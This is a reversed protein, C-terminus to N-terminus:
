STRKPVRLQLGGSTAAFGAEILHSALPSAAAAAGNIEAILWGRREAPDDYALRVLERALARGVRSRDPEEGPLATLLQRDGRAIWAILAGDILVV